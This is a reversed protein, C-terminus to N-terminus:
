MEQITKVRESPMLTALADLLTSNAIKRIAGQKIMSRYMCRKPSAKLFLIGSNRIMKSLREAATSVEFFPEPTRDRDIGDRNRAREESAHVKRAGVCV